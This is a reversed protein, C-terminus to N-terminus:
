KSLFLILLIISLFIMGFLSVLKTHRIASETIQPEDQYMWRRGWVMAEKPNVYQWILVAYLPLCIILWFIANVM